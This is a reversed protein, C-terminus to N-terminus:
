LKAREISYKDSLDRIIENMDASTKKCSDSMKNNLFLAAAGLAVSNGLSKNQLLFVKSIAAIVINLAPAINQFEKEAVIRWMKEEIELIAEKSYKVSNRVENLKKTTEHITNNITRLEEDEPDAHNIMEEIGAIGSMFDHLNAGSFKKRSILDESKENLRALLAVVKSELLRNDEYDAIKAPYMEKLKSVEELPDMKSKRKFLKNIIKILGLQM